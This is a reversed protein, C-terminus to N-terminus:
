WWGEPFPFTVDDALVAGCFDTAAAPSDGLGAV